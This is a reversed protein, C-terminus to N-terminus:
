DHVVDKVGEAPEDQRQVQGDSNVGTGSADGDSLESAQAAWHKSKKGKDERMVKVWPSQPNYRIEGAAVLEKMRMWRQLITEYEKTQPHEAGM